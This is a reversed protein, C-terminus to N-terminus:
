PPAESPKPSIPAHTVLTEQERYSGIRPSRGPLDLVPRLGAATAAGSADKLHSAPLGVIQAAPVPAPPPATCTRNNRTRGMDPYETRATGSAATM